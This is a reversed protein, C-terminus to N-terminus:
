QVASSRIRLTYTVGFSVIPFFRAPALQSKDTSVDETLNANFDPDTAVDVCGQTGLANTCAQGGTFAMGLTPQGIFAVGAEFPFSWRSIGHEGHPIINRSGASITFAPNSTHLNVSANGVVPSTPSSYYTNGNFTFPSDGNPTVVANLTDRNYFLLGPSIRFGRQRLPYYDLTVGANAFNLTGNLLLGNAKRNPLPYHYMGGTSRLTLTRTLMFGTQLRIGMTSVSGGVSMWTFPPAAPATTMPFQTYAASSAGKPAPATTASTLAM